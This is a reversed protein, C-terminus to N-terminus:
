ASSDLLLPKVARYFSQECAGLTFHEKWREYGAQGYAAALQPKDLLTKIAAALAAPCGPEFLLGSKGDEVIEALGGHRSAIVPKGFAMAEIAVLGFPEPLRSPVVVVDASRYSTTPDTEFPHIKITEGLRLQSIQRELREVFENQGDFVGGVIRVDVKGADSPQLKGIADVLIEQGKWTNIRGIVLICLKREGRWAEALPGPGQNVDCGCYVVEQRFTRPLAFADRTAKSNFIVLSPKSWRLLARFCTLEFGNPIEHVHVIVKRRVFRSMLIFDFSIITNIYTVDSGRMASLARALARINRFLNVTVDKLLGRRRLIWMRRAHTRMSNLPYLTLIDGKRPILVEVNLNRFKTVFVGLCNAFVRDSGYLEYNPHM